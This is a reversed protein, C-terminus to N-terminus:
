RDNRLISSAEDRRANGRSRSKSALKLIANSRVRSTHASVNYQQLPYLIIDRTQSVEENMM